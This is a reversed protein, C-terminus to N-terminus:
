RWAIIPRGLIAELDVIDSAFRDTLTSRADRTLEFSSVEPPAANVKHFLRHAGASRLGTLISSLGRDILWQSTRFALKHLKKSRRKASENTHFSGYDLMVETDVGLYSFLGKFGAEPDHILEEFIIIHIQQRDYFELFRRLQAAYLGTEVYVSEQDLAEEFSIEPIIANGRHLKYFSFARSVPHRLCVLLKTNPLHKHLNEPARADALYVPSFEGCIQGSKVHSFRRLYWDMSRDFNPNLKGRMSGVPMEHRNFYRIEKPESICIGPHARLVNAIWSTGCRAAGIGVFDVNQKM